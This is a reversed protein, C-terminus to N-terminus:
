PMGWYSPNLLHEDTLALNSIQALMKTPLPGSEASKVTQKLEPLTRVGVLVTAVQPASLCFRLAVQPIAQWSVALTDKVWEAAQRLPALESPLWKSKATLAGKLFVSRSIIGVGAHEAAPFVLRSMRQDLVNYAVQLVDFCGAKIVALAAEERYVSAGLFRVKGQQQAQLLAETIEGRTIVEVTANHIQVIDLVDRQLAHLSQEISKQVAHQLPVGRLPHGNKDLPISVKTAIYCDQRQGITQGLLRESKGYGPATDFFNIGVDTAQQLLYIVEAETPRGFEGPVKIGYDMGLSVTGLAVASIKLGTKGLLRYNM